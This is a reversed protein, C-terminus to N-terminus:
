LFPMCWFIFGLRGVPSITYYGIGDGMFFAIYIAIHTTTTEYHALDMNLYWFEPLIMIHWTCMSYNQYRFYLWSLPGRWMICMSIWKICSPKQKLVMEKLIDILNLWVEVEIIETGHKQVHCTIISGCYWM